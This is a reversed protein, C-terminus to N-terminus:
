SAGPASVDRAQNATSAAASRAQLAILGHGLAAAGLAARLLRFTGGGLRGRNEADQPFSIADRLTVESETLVM